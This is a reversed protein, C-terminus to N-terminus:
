RVLRKIEERISQSSIKELVPEFFGEVIMQEAEHRPLGRSMLYFMQQEDVHGITAGHSAKVDNADIMLGPISNAVSQESLKLTHDSLYSDTMQAQKSIKIMGRYVSSSKDKVVGKALINNYTNPSNHFANTTLDIHQNGRGLFICLTEGRSGPGNFYTDIKARSMGSGVSIINWNISADKEMFAAMNSFTTDNVSFNQLSTFSMKAGEGCFIDYNITNLSTSNSSLMETFDLSSGPELIILSNAMCSGARCEVKLTENRPVHIFSGSTWFADNMLSFKDANGKRKSIYKKIIEPYKSAAVKMNEVVANSKDFTIVPDHFIPPSFDMINLGHLDTYRWSEEKESPISAEEFSEFAKKRAQAIWLPEKKSLAEVLDINFTNILIM